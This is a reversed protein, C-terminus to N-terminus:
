LQINAKFEVASFDNEFEASTNEERYREFGVKLSIGDRLRYGLLLSWRQVILEEANFTYAKELWSIESTIRRSWNQAWLVEIQRGVTDEGLEVDEEASYSEVFQQSGTLLLRTNRRPRWELGVDWIMNGATEADTEFRKRQWGISFLGKIRRRIALEAGLDFSFERSSFEKGGYDYSGYQLGLQYALRPRHQYQVQMNLGSKNFSYRSINFNGAYGNKEQSILTIFRLRDKDRGRRFEAVLATQTNAIPSQDNFNRQQLGETNAYRLKIGVLSKSGVVHRFETSAGHEEVKDDRDGRVRGSRLTYKSDASWRKGEVLLHFYPAATVWYEKESRQREKMRRMRISTEVGSEVEGALNKLTQLFDNSHELLNPLAINETITNNAFVQQAASPRRAASNGVMRQRKEMDVVSFQDNEITGLLAYTQGVKVANDSRTKASGQSDAILLMHVPTSSAAALLPCLFLVTMALVKLM